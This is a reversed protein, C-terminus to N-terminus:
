SKFKLLTGLISRLPKGDRVRLFQLNMGSKNLTRSYVQMEYGGEDTVMLAHVKLTKGQVKAWVYPDGKLPDLPVTAGFVDKRMGSEYINPRGSPHFAISYDKRKLKGNSRYTVTSWNLVFGKGGDARRISISLDRALMAGDKSSVTQGIYDGFFQKVSNESAQASNLGLLLVFLAAVFELRLTKM